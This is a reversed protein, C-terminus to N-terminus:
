MYGNVWVKQRGGKRKEKVCEPHGRCRSRRDVGTVVRCRRVTDALVVGGRSLQVSEEEVAPVDPLRGCDVPRLVLWSLDM